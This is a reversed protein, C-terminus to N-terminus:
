FQQRGYSLVAYNQYLRADAYTNTISTLQCWQEVKGILREMLGRPLFCEKRLQLLPFTQFSSLNSATSFVFYCRSFNNDHNWIGVRFTSTDGVTSPLLSPVLYYQAQLLRGGSATDHGHELRVMLGYKLMMNIIVPINSAEVKHALLYEMLPRSVLGRQTMEDWEKARNKKCFKQINQHHITTDSLKSIHNCIVLTAPEVFFTFIDLIVVDRLGEEDLWLVVGMENLFSLFFPVDDEAVGNAIAIFSAETMRLFSKKTAMLEDLAKLWTLPRPEKVYEVEKVVNEITSMLDTVINDSLGKKNNVPFFCLSYNATSNKYEQIHPWVAHYHFREEIIQFIQDFSAAENVHDKHTGVLFVPAIKGNVEDQTHMVISNIWFSMESLSQERKNNDLIDVMNFVVVYVGYSTLFLHHIINFVSQGGFDFLSLILDADRVTVEELSKMVLTVYAKIMPASNDVKAKNSEVRTEFVSGAINTLADPQEDKDVTAILPADGESESSTESHHDNGQNTPERGASKSSEMNRVLEALGAEFERVPKTHEVWRGDSNAAARRVDCTLQTLGATSETDEFRKGMLSNCLATKGARGEGVIVVKSRNWPKSGLAMVRQILPQILVAISVLRYKKEAKM